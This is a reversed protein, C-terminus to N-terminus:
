IVEQCGTTVESWGSQLLCTSLKMGGKELQNDQLFSIENKWFHIDKLLHKMILFMNKTLEDALPRDLVPHPHPDCIRGRLSM